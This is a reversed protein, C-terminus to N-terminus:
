RITDKRVAIIFQYYLYGLMLKNFVFLWPKNKLEDFSTISVYKFFEDFLKNLHSESFNFIINQLHAVNDIHLFLVTFFSVLFIGILPRFWSRSFKSTIWNMQFVLFDFFNSKWHEKLFDKRKELELSFYKNAEIQNGIKQCNYKIIRYTEQSINKSNELGISGFFNMEKEINAKDLNLGNIFIAERFHSLGKFTVYEFIVKSSFKCEGFLSLGNFNIGKFCINKDLQLFKSKFFDANKEFDVNNIEIDNIEINHLKFNSNFVSDKIKLFTIKKAEESQIYFKGSFKSNEIILKNFYSSKFSISYLDDKQNKINFFSLENFSCNDFVFNKSLIINENIFESKRLFNCNRFILKNKNSNLTEISNYEIIEGDYIIQNDKFQFNDFEIDIFELEQTKQIHVINDSLSIKGQKLLDKFKVKEM